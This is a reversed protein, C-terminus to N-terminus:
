AFEPTRPTHGNQKKASLLGGGAGRVAGNKRGCQAHGATRARLCAYGQRRARVGVAGVAGQARLHVTDTSRILCGRRRGHQRRGCERPDAIYGVRVPVSDHGTERTVAQCVGLVSGVRRGVREAQQRYCPVNLVTQYEVSQEASVLDGSRRRPVAPITQTLSRYFVHSCCCLRRVGDQLLECLAAVDRAGTRILDRLRKSFQAVLRLRRGICGDDLETDDFQLNLKRQLVCTVNQVDNPYVIVGRRISSAAHMDRVQAKQVIGANAAYTVPEMPRVVPGSAVFEPTKSCM